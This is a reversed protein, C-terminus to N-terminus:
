FGLKRLLYSAFVAILAGLIAVLPFRLVWHLRRPPSEDPASAPPAQPELRDPVRTTEAVIPSGPRCRPSKM